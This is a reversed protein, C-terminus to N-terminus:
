AGEESDLLDEGEGEDPHQYMEDAEYKYPWHVFIMLLALSNGAAVQIAFPGSTNGFSGCCEFVRPCLAIPLVVLFSISYIVFKFVDTSQMNRFSRLSAGIVWVFLICELVVRVCQFVVVVVHPFVEIGLIEWGNFLLPYILEVLFFVSFFCIKPPFFCDHLSQTGVYDIIILVFFLIIVRSVTGLLRDLLDSLIKPGRFFAPFLPNLGIASSLSLMLTWKQELTWIPLNKIGFYFVILTATTALLFTLRIWLQFSFHKEDGYTWSFVASDLSGMEILDLRIDARDYTLFRDFFFIISESTNEGDRFQLFQSFFQQDRRVLSKQNYFITSSTFSVFLSNSSSNSSSFALRVVLFQHRPSLDPITLSLVNKQSQFNVPLINQGQHFLGPGIVGACTTSLIVVIFLILAFIIDKRSYADILMMLESATVNDEIQINVSRFLV